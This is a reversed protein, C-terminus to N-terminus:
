KYIVATGDTYVLNKYEDLLGTPYKYETLAGNEPTFTFANDDGITPHTLIVWSNRLVLTPYADTIVEEGSVHEQSTFMYKEQLFSAQIPYSLVKPQTGLWSVASNDQPTMYYLDYYLGSNNLNLEALNGGLLQPVLTSTALFIGLCLVCSAVRAWSRLILEFVTMSGLVIIPAFFLLGQQFARLPGYDASISPLVTNAAIMGISGICLCFFQRGVLHKGRRRSIILHLLGIGLFLQEGYAVFNRVLANLAVVPVGVSNVANGLKTLPTLAQDVPPTAVKSVTAAPLYLDEQNGRSKLSSQRLQQIAEAPTVAQSGFGSFSIAGSTLAGSGDNLVQGTTNTALTGWLFIVGILGSVLGLTVANRLRSAPRRHRHRVRIPVSSPDGGVFLHIGWACVMAIGLTGLFVYMTSYHSIEVGIGAVVLAVQRRRWSWATNTAALVGVAVFLLSIEQRNLFPMDTFFTPFGIFYAAALTSIGRNFYRRSVGYAMVPVLAFIVQFFFKYVYPNDVNVIRGIETPLITISLCAYYASSDYSMSWHGHAETLQFVLYEQQIDHGTISWGRLSTTLLLSLSVLYIVLLMLPERTVRLWRVAFIGVIAALALAALTLDANEGNNLRIAGLVALVVTLAAAALLRVEERGFDAISIHLGVQGPYSRRLAYLSVNIIDSTIIVPGADLPRQLGGAPLLENMALGVLMLLLLAAGVSYGLRESISCGRWAATAYILYSPFIVIYWFGLAPRVVPVDVKALVIFNVVVALLLAAIAPFVSPEEPPAQVSPAPRRPPQRSEPRRTEPQWTGPQRAGPQRSAPRRAEPRGTEPRRPAAPAWGRNDYSM